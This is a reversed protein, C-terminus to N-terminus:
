RVANVMYDIAQKMEADKLAPNGGKPPMMSLGNIGNTYLVEIGKAVRPAWVSKDGFKPAGLVGAGHCALCTATYVKEGAALDAASPAPGAAAAAAPAAAPAPAPATVPAPAAPAAAPTGASAPAETKQGCAALAVALLIPLLKHTKM